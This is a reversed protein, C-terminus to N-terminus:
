PGLMNQSVLSDWFIGVSRGTRQEPRIATNERSTSHEEEVISLLFFKLGWAGVSVGLQWDSKLWNLVCVSLGLM